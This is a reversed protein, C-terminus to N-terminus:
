LDNKSECGKNANKVSLNDVTVVTSVKIQSM